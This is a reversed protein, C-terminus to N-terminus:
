RSRLYFSSFKNKIGDYTHTRTHTHEHTRTHTFTYVGKLAFMQRCVRMGLRNMGKQKRKDFVCVRWIKWVLKNTNINFIRLASMIPIVCSNTSLVRVICHNSSLPVCTCVYKCSSGKGSRDTRDQGRREKSYRDICSKNENIKIEEWRREDRWCLMM